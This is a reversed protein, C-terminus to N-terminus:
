PQANTVKIGNVPESVNFSISLPQADGKNGPNQQNNWSDPMRNNLWYICSTADPPYHKITEVIIPNNPDRPNSLIKEEKHSYGLARHLLSNVVTEDDFIRKGEKLSQLFEPIDKWNNITKECVNFFDALQIDTSGLACLKRAQEAFEEKYKKPRAM